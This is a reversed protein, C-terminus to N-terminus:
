GSASGAIWAGHVGKVFYWLDDVNALETLGEELDLEEMFQSKGQDPTEVTNM